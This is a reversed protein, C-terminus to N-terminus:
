QQPCPRGKPELVLNQKVVSGDAYYATGVVEMRQELVEVIASQLIVGHPAGKPFYPIELSVRDNNNLVYIQIGSPNVGSAIPDTKDGQQQGPNLLIHHRLGEPVWSYELCAHSDYVDRLFTMSIQEAM